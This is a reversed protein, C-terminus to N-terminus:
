LPCPGGNRTPAMTQADALPGVPPRSYSSFSRVGLWSRNPEDCVFLRSYSKGEIPDDGLSQERWRALEPVMGLEFEIGTPGVYPEPRVAYTADAYKNLETWRTVLAKPDLRRLLDFFEERSEAEVITSWRDAAPPLGSSGPRELGGAVVNGDKIAYDYGLDPRGRSAAINPHHGGVDFFTSRRSQKKRGFDIFVHLHTGGDAHDERGIICEAGLSSLHDLVAWESLDGCQPYTLLAYRASFYFTM